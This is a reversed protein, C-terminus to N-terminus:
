FPSLKWHARFPPAYEEHALGSVTSTEESGSPGYVSCTVALSASPLVLAGTSLGVIVISRVAGAPPVIETGARVLEVVIVIEEVAYESPPEPIALLTIV